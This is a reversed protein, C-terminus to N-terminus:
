REFYSKLSSSSDERFNRKMGAKQAFLYCAIREMDVAWFIHEESDM